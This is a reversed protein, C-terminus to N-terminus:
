SSFKSKQCFNQNKVFIKIKASIKSLFQSKQRFNHSKSLFKLKHVIQRELGLEDWKKDFVM